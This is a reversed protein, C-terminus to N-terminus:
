GHFARCSFWDARGFIFFRESAIDDDRKLALQVETCIPCSELRSKTRRRWCRNLLNASSMRHWTWSIKHTLIREKKDYKKNVIFGRAREASWAAKYLSSIRVSQRDISWVVGTHGSPTSRTMLSGDGGPKNPGLKQSWFVKQGCFTANCGFWRVRQARIRKM